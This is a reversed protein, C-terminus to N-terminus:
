YKFSYYYFVNIFIYKTVAGNKKFLKDNLRYKKDPRQSSTVAEYKVCIIKLLNRLFGVAYNRIKM